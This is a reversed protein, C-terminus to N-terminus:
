AVGGVSSRDSSSIASMSFISFFACWNSMGSSLLIIFLAFPMPYLCRTDFPSAVNSSRSDPWTTPPLVTSTSDPM